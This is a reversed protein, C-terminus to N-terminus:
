WEGGDQDEARVEDRPLWRRNRRGILTCKVIIMAANGHTGLREFRGESDQGNGEAERQENHASDGLVQVSWKPRHDKGTKTRSDHKEINAAARSSKGQSMAFASISPTAHGQHRTHMAILAEELEGKGAAQIRGQWSRM